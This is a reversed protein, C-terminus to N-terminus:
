RRYLWTSEHGTQTSASIKLLKELPVSIGLEEHLERKAAEDYNEGDSVHGAASSDWLLPHRDKRRSRQQLYVQGAENFILIHVARHRFNNAHVEQRYGYRIIRDAEDVVPFREQPLLSAESLPSPAALNTLRIWQRL